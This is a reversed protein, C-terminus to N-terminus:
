RYSPYAQSRALEDRYKDESLPQMPAEISLIRWKRSAAVGQREAGSDTSEEKQTQPKIRKKHQHLSSLRTAKPRQDTESEETVSLRRFSYAAPPTAREQSFYPLHPRAAGDKVKKQSPKSIVFSRFSIM